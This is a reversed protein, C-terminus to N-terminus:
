FVVGDDSLKGGDATVARYSADPALGKKLGKGGNNHEKAEQQKAPPHQVRDLESLAKTYYPEYYDVDLFFLSYILTTLSFFFFFSGKEYQKDLTYLSTFFIIM